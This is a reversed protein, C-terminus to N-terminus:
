VFHCSECDDRTYAMGCHVLLEVEDETLHECGYLAAKCIVTIVYGSVGRQLEFTIKGLQSRLRAVLPNKGCSIVGPICGIQEFM